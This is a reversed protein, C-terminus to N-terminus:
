IGCQAQADLLQRMPFRQQGRLLAKLLALHSIIFRMCPPWTFPALAGFNSQQAAHCPLQGAALCFGTLICAAGVLLKLHWM